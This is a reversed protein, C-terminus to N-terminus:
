RFPDYGNETRKKLTKRVKGAEEPNDFVIAVLYSM